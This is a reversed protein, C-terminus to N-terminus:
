CQLVAFRSRRTSITSAPCVLFQTDTFSTSQIPSLHRNRPSPPADVDEDVGIDLVFPSLPLYGNWRREARRAPSELALAQPQGATMCDVIFPLIRGNEFAQQFNERREQQQQTRPKPIPQQEEQCTSHSKCEVGVDAELKPLCLWSSPSRPLQQPDPFSSEYHQDLLGHQRRLLCIANEKDPKEEVICCDDSSCGLGLWTSTLPSWQEQDELLSM